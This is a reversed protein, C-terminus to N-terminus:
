ACLQPNGNAYLNYFPSMEEGRRWIVPSVVFDGYLQLGRQGAEQSNPVKVVLAERFQLILIFKGQVSVEHMACLLDKSEETFDLPALSHLTSCDWDQRGALILDLAIANKWVSAQICARNSGM